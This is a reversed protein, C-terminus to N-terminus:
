PLTVIQTKINKNAPNVPNPDHLASRKSNCGNLFMSSSEIKYDNHHETVLRTTKVDLRINGIARLSIKDVVSLLEM